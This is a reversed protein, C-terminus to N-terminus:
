RDEVQWEEMRSAYPAPLPWPSPTLRGLAELLLPRNEEDTSIDWRTGPAPSAQFAGGHAVLDAVVQQAEIRGVNISLGAPTLEIIAM